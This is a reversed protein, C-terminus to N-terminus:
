RKGELKRVKLRLSRLENAVILFAAVDYRDFCLKQLDILAQELKKNYAFPKMTKMKGGQVGRIITQSRM